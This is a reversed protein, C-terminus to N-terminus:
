KQTGGQAEKTEEKSREALCAEHAPEGLDNLECENLRVSRNCIVCPVATLREKMHRASFFAPPEMSYAAEPCAALKIVKLEMKVISAKKAKM